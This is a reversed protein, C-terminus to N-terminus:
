RRFGGWGAHASGPANVRPPQSYVPASGGGGGGGSYGGGGGGMYQQAAEREFRMKALMQDFATAANQANLRNFDSMAANHASYADLGIRKENQTAGIAGQRAANRANLAGLMQEERNRAIQAHQGAIARGTENDVDRLAEGGGVGRMAFDEGTQQRLGAFADRTASTAQNLVRGTNNELDQVHKAYARDIEGLTADEEASINPAAPGAGAPSYGPVGPIPNVPPPFYSVPPPAGGGGLNNVPGGPAPSPAPAPAAAPKQKQNLSPKPM